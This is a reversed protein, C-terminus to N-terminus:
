HGPECDGLLRATEQGADRDIDAISV